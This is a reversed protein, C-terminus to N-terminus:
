GIRTAGGNGQHCRYGRVHVGPAVSTRDHKIGIQHLQTLLCLSPVLICDVLKDLQGALSAIDILQSGERVTSATIRDGDQHLQGSLSAVSGFKSAQGGASVLNRGFYKGFEVPVRRVLVHFLAQLM